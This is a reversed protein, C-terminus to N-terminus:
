WGEISISHNYIGYYQNIIESNQRKGYIINAQELANNNNPFLSIFINKSSGASRIVKNILTDKDQESLVSLSFNLQDHLFGRDSLLDGSENRSTQSTDNLTYSIGTSVNYKPEWYAGCVIRSCDIYGAANNTDIIDIVCKKVSYHQAFWVATKTAGGYAFANVNLAQQWNWLSTLQTSSATITGSDAIPTADAALTYLRVRVTATTSLNTAPLGVGGISQANTWTLTYTVSTGTSRHVKTKYENQMNSATLSGTTTSATITSLDAVNDYIIRMNAM